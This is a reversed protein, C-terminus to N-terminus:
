LAKQEKAPSTGDGEGLVRQDLEDEVKILPLCTVV